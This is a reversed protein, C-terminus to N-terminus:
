LFGPWKEWLFPHVWTWSCLSLVLVAGWSQTTAALEAPCLPFLGLRRHPWDEESNQRESTLQTCDSTVESKLSLEKM